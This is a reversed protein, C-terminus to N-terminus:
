RHAARLPSIWAKDVDKLPVRRLLVPWTWIHPTIYKITSVRVILAQPPIVTTHIPSTNDLPQAALVDLSGSVRSPVSVQLASTSQPEAMRHWRPVHTGSAIPEPPEAEPLEPEPPLPAQWVRALPGVRGIKGIDV